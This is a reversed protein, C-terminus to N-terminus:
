KSLIAPISATDGWGQNKEYGKGVRWAWAKNGGGYRACMWSCDSFYCFCLASINKDCSQVSKGVEWGKADKRKKGTEYITNPKQQLGDWIPREM